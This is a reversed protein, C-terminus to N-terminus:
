SHGKETSDSRADTPARSTAASHPPRSVPPLLWSPSAETGVGYPEAVLAVAGLLAADDGLASVELRTGGVVPHIVMDGLAAAIPDTIVNGAAALPGGLVVLSPALMGVVHALAMGIYRGADAILRSSLVEGARASAIIEDLTARTDGLARMQNVLARGSALSSLDGRKGCTCVPGRDDITVHGIEGAMGTGGRFLRGDAVIGAGLGYAAMVYVLDACDRGAGWRAEALAAANADNEAVVAVGLREALLPVVPEAAWGPMLPTPAILRTRADYPQPLSLGLGLVDAPTVGGDAMLREVLRVIADIDETAADRAASLLTPETDTRTGGPFEILVARAVDYRLDVGIVVGTTARLSVLTERGNAGQDVHVQGTVTLAHVVNHVTQRSLGATRALMAQSM